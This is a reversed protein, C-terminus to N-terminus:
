DPDRPETVCPGETAGKSLAKAALSESLTRTRGKSCVTVMGPPPCAGLTDGRALHAPAANAGVTITNKGKHCLTVKGGPTPAPTPGAMASSAWLVVMGLALLALLSLLVRSKRAGAKYRRGRLPATLLIGAAGSILLLLNGPEPAFTLTLVGHTGVPNGAFSFQIPTVLQVVGLGAADRNDYGTRTLTPAGGVTNFVQVPGTSWPGGVVSWLNSQADLGTVTGGLGVGNVGGSTLPLSILLFNGYNTLTALLTGPAALPGSLPTGSFSGAGLPNVKAAIRLNYAGGQVTRTTLTVTTPLAAAGTPVTVVNPTTTSTGDGALGISEGFIELTGAFPTAGAPMGFAMVALLAV